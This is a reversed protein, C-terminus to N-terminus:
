RTMSLCNTYNLLFILSDINKVEYPNSTYGGVIVYYYDDITKVIKINYIGFISNRKYNKKISPKLSDMILNFEDKSLKKKDLLSKEPDFLFVRDVGKILSPNITIGDISSMLKKFISLLPILQDCKYYKDYEFSLLGYKKHTSINYYDDDLKNIRIIISGKLYVNLYYFKKGKIISYEKGIVIPYESKDIYSKINNTIYMMTTNFVDKIKDIDKETLSISNNFDNIYTEKSIIEVGKPLKISELYENLKILYKM